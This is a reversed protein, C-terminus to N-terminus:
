LLTLRKFIHSTTSSRHDKTCSINHYIIHYVATLQSNAPDYTHTQTCHLVACMACNIRGSVVTSSSLMPHARHNAARPLPSSLAIGYVVVALTVVCDSSLKSYTSWNQQFNSIYIQVVCTALNQSVTYFTHSSPHVPAPICPVIKQALCM